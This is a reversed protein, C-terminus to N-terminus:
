RVNSPPWVTGGSIARSAASQNMASCPQLILLEFLLRAKQWYTAEPRRHLDEGM